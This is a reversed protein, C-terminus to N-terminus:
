KCIDKINFFKKCDINLRNSVAFFNNDMEDVLKKSILRNFPTFEEVKLQNLDINLINDNYSVYIEDYLNNIHLKLLNDISLTIPKLIMTLCNFMHSYEVYVQHVNNGNHIFDNIFYKICIDNSTGSKLLELSFEINNGIYLEAYFELKKFIFPKKSKKYYLFRRKYDLLEEETLNNPLNRGYIKITFKNGYREIANIIKAIYCNYKHFKSLSLHQKENDLQEINNFRRYLYLERDIFVPKAVGELKYLIDMDEGGYRFKPNYGHTNLYDKLRWSRFALGFGDYLLGKGPNRCFGKGTKKFNRDTFSFNTYIFVNENGYERYKNLVETLCEPELRDDGDLVGVFETKVLYIGQLQCGVIGKWETNNIILIRELYPIVKYYDDGFVTELNISSDSGDNIIVNYWSDAGIGTQEILSGISDKLYELNNRICTIITIKDQEIVTKELLDNHLIISKKKYEEYLTNDWTKYIEFLGNSNNTPRDYLILSDQVPNDEIISRKFHEENEILFDDLNTYIKELRPMNNRLILINKKKNSVGHILDGQNFLVEEIIKPKNQRNNKPKVDRNVIPKVKTTDIKPTDIAFTDITTTDTTTTDIAVTDIKPTDTTTTDIAATDITTTDITTTDIKATDIKATDITTKDYIVPLTIRSKSVHIKISTDVKNNEVPSCNLYTQNKMKEHFKRRHEDEIETSKKKSFKNLM